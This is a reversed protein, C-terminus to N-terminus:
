VDKWNLSFGKLVNEGDLVTSDTLAVKEVENEPRFVYAVNELPDILWGLRSGNQIYQRMKVILDKVRDTPSRLELVFEPVLPAFGVKDEDSLEALQQNSVFALDPSKISGDPMKFGTSSDLLQGLKTSRNWIGFLILLQANIHGTRFGTPSMITLNQESDTEIRLHTNLECLALLQEQSLHISQPMYLVFKDMTFIKSLLLFM